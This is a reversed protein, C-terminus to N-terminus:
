HRNILLGLVIGGSIELADRWTFLPKKPKILPDNPDIVAGQIGQIVIGPCSSRVFIELKKDKEKLGTILKLNFEDQEVVFKPKTIEGAKTLIFTAHGRFLRCSDEFDTRITGTSDKMFATTVKIITDGRFRLNIETLARVKGKEKKLEASLNAALQELEKKSGTLAYKASELEGNKTKMIRVSDLLAVRNQDNIAIKNELNKVHYFGWILAAALVGIVGLMIKNTTTM